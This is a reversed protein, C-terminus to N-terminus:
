CRRRLRPVIHAGLSFEESTAPLLAASISVQSRACTHQVGVSQRHLATSRVSLMPTTESATTTLRQLKSQPQSRNEHEFRSTLQLDPSPVPTISHLSLPSKAKSTSMSVHPNLCTRGSSEPSFHATSRQKFSTSRLDSLTGTWCAICWCADDAHQATAAILFCFSCRRRGM